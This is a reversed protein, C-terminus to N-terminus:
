MMEEQIFYVRDHQTIRGQKILSRLADVAQFRNIGLTSEIQDLRAGHLQHLQNYVAQEVQAPDESQALNASNMASNTSTTMKLIEAIVPTVPTPIPNPKLAAVSATSFRSVTSPVISTQLASRNWVLNSLEARYQRLEHRFESLHQFLTDVETLRRDRDQQLLCQLQQKRDQRISELEVLNSQVQTELAAVFAKLEQIQQKRAQIRYQQRNSLFEHNQSQLSRLKEQLNTRLLTVSTSLQTRTRSLDQMLQQAMASRDAAKAILLQATQTQLTKFFDHLLQSIQEAQVQRQQSVHALFEQTEQQLELQFLSLDDRLQGAKIQREQQFSALTKRVEQQRQALEQQRQQRQEQWLGQLATM